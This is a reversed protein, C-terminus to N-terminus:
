KLIFELPIPLRERWSKESHDKGEFKLSIFSNSDYGKEVLITDARLQFPEYLADLTETGYDFYLRHNKSSPAKNELYDLISFPIPNNINTYTGTWHTSLCAASGFVDPYECIAYLSILGGMSSGAIFTTQQSPNTSFTEDVFPKLEDVIFHLYNDSQIGENFIHSEDQRVAVELLSDQTTKPLADFPKRPFYESHRIKSINWIAVVITPKIKNQAMLESVTEDVGWESKNWTNTSDFLMQGDHMYLVSYEVDNDYGDPLWVDVTRPSIYKSDFQEFRYLKGASLNLPYEKLKSLKSCSTLILFGLVIAIISRM